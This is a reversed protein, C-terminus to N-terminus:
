TGHAFSVSQFGQCTVFLREARWHGVCVCVYVRLCVRASVCVRLCVRVRARVRVIDLCQSTCSLTGTIVRLYQGDTASGTNRLPADVTHHLGVTIASAVAVAVEVIAM